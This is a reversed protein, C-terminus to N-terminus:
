EHWLANPFAHRRVTATASSCLAHARPQLLATLVEPTVPSGRSAADTAAAQALALFPAAAEQAAAAAAPEACAATVTHGLVDAVSDVVDRLRVQPCDDHTCVGCQAAGSHLTWCYSRISQGLRVVILSQACVQDGHLGAPFASPPLTM